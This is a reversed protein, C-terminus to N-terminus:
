CRRCPPIRSRRRRRSRVVSVPAAPPSTRRSSSSTSTTTASSPQPRLWQRAACTASGIGGDPRWSLESRCSAAPRSRTPAGTRPLRPCPHAGLGPGNRCRDCTHDRTRRGRDRRDPRGPPVDASPPRNARLRRGPPGADAVGLLGHVTRRGPRRLVRADPGRVDSWASSDIPRRVVAVNGFLSASGGDSLMVDDDRLVRDGRAEALAGFGEAAGQAYDNCLNDGAPADAGYGTALEEDSEM